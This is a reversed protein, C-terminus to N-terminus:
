ALHVAIAWSTIAEAFVHAPIDASVDAINFGFEEDRGGHPFLYAWEFPGGEWVIALPEHGVWDFDEVIKPGSGPDVAYQRQRRLAALVKEVDGRTVTTRHRFSTM